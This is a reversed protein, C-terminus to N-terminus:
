GKVFLRAIKKMRERRVSGKPFWRNMKNILKVYIGDVYLTGELGDVYLDNPGKERVPATAAQATVGRELRERLEKGWSTRDAYVFFHEAMDCEPTEWPKQGGAYHVIKPTKRAEMYAIYMRHPACSIADMRSKGDIRWNMVVNWTMPLEMFRGMCLTNLIDQDMFLWFRSGIYHLIQQASFSKRFQALNMVLVGANYYDYPSVPKMSTEFYRMRDADYGHCCGATDIDKVAAVLHDGLETDYLQAIDGLVILDADLYVVKDYRRLIDLLLLRYYAEVPIHFHTQMQVSAFMFAVNYFRISVNKMAAFEAKIREQHAGTITSQLVIVDYNRKPDANDVLSRLMTTVYPCFGDNVTLVIPVNREAFAPDIDPLRDTSFFQCKQLECCRVSGDMQLKTYFIGWLREALFGSVRLENIDYDELDVRREHEELIDFLWASYAEFIDRRLIYMNCFYAKSGFLYRDMAREYEPYRERIIQMVMELDGIRQHPSTRYHEYVNPLNWCKKTDQPKVTVVDYREMLQAITADSLNLTCLTERSLYPLQVNGNGDEPLTEPNLSFYRRYHMFGYYDADVNKWAWYQATLECYMRNKESINIGTDDHLAIGPLEGHIATGVQIPRVMESELAECMKHCSVFVRIVPEKTTMIDRRVAQKM